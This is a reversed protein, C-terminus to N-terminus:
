EAVGENGDGLRELVRLADRAARVDHVRLGWVGRRALLVTLATNAHERQDVPRV